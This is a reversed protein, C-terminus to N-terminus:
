LVKSVYPGDQHYGFKKYYQRTGVASIVAIKNVGLEEKSIREAEKLLKTGLGRHQYSDERDSRGVNIAQGYIHLERIVTSDDLEYRHPKAVKRLRLFGLITDGKKSEYSLFIEQGGSAAYDIRRLEVDRELPYSRQLGTERCRICRCRLGQERLKKLVIQRLNGSKPGAMIDRSEIERQMRMIRVWEPVIKKAEVIVNVLEEESYAQYKFNKYMNFLGTNQLVLTPYIKLMDPKFSDDEFLRRFDEIDEKISSGPLGPMMHAVIKYGADRATKFARIVDDLTHGRNVLRYVKNNLSQVGIEIRTVGLELMLDIHSEKCYDPKTEVTFGVCRNEAIENYSIAQQLSSSKIGNLADYCSKAFHRQYEVPMFPFTGGVIVIETKGTNHGRSQLQRMKSRVQEYPDYNFSQAVKTAPETGTYSLPTNFELGGPCYICRGHPCAYPKPMVAIVAVGSATKAPKVMLLHRYHNDQLYRIIHENRPIRDLHYESAVQRIVRFVQKISLLNKSGELQAAISKCAHQYDRYNNKDKEDTKERASSLL